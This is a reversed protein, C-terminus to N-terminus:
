GYAAARWEQRGALKCSQGDALYGAKKTSGADGGGGGSLAAKKRKGDLPKKQRNLVSTSKVSSRLFGKKRAAAEVIHM